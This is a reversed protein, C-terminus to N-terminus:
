LCHIEFTRDQTWRNKTKDFVVWKDIEAPCSANTVARVWGWTKDPNNNVGWTYSKGRTEPRSLFVNKNQKKYFIKDGEGSLYYIGLVGPHMKFTEENSSLEITSCCIHDLRAESKEDVGQTTTTMIMIQNTISTTVTTTVTTTASTKHTTSTSTKYASTSPKLGELKRSLVFTEKDILQKQVPNSDQNTMEVEDQLLLLENMKSLKDELKSRTSLEVSLIFVIVILLTILVTACHSSISKLFRNSLFGNKIPIQSYHTSSKTDDIQQENFNITADEQDIRKFKTYKNGDSLEM